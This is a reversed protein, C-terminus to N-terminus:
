LGFPYTEEWGRHKLPDREEEIALPTLATTRDFWVYADFQKPLVAESYHSWIETLPRYIVGIFREKRPKMLLRTSEAAEDRLDIMCQPVGADHFVREYSDERSPVVKMIQLPEDWNEAAAVTGTHTGFGIISVADGYRERCLQGLNLENRLTGM